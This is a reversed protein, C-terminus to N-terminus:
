HHGPGDATGPVVQTGGRRGRMRKGRHTDCGGQAPGGAAVQEEVEGEPDAQAEEDRHPLVRVVAPGPRLHGDADDREADAHQQAAGRRQDRQRDRHQAGGEVVRLQEGRRVGGRHAGEGEERAAAVGPHPRRDQHEGRVRDGPERQAQRVVVPQPHPEGLQGRQEALHHHRPQDAPVDAVVGLQDGVAPLQGVAHLALLPRDGVPLPQALARADRAVHVVREAVVEGQDGQPGGGQLDVAIQRGGLLPGRALQPQGGGVGGGPQAVEHAHQALVALARRRGRGVLRDGLQHLARLVGPYRHFELLLSRLRGDGPM